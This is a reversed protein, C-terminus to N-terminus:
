CPQQLAVLIRWAKTEFLNSIQTSECVFLQHEIAPSSKTRSAHNSKAKKTPSAEFESLEATSSEESSDHLCLENGRSRITGKVKSNHHYVTKGPSIIKEKHGSDYHSIDTRWLSPLSFDRRSGSGVGRLDAGAKGKDSYLRRTEAQKISVRRKKKNRKNGM